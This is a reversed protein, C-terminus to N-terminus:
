EADSNVLEEESLLLDKLEEPTEARIWRDIFAPNEAKRAIEALVRLHQAPNARSGLLVFVAHIAQNANPFEIGEVSHAIVMYFGEVDDLLLHPLAVGAEAPTEGLQNRQLLAGLILDSSVGSAKALIQAGHRIVDDSDQRPPIEFTEAANVVQVFPDGRRLGKEKLIQRLEENLGMATADHSLLREGVRQAMQAVAGVRTVHHSAYLYHWVVGLGVLGMSFISAMFGMKPILVISVLIGAIPMFPYLPSKFGPDYSKIGSERMVIVAVNVLGFVLLQFTSALKAMQELGTFVVIFVIVGSTLFIANKPTKFKSFRSLGHPIVRDRSMALLYRSASLIGANATTAFALVAALSILHAGGRGITLGAADSVPTLSTYLQEKPVVGVVIWVVLGYILMVSVLSLLMGLPINREPDRVEEALSAVKTLGIYSIFLFAATPLVSQTGFPAFPTLRGSEIAPIGRIVLLSLILLMALVMGVQMGAAEKAGFFNMLVFVICCIVAIVNVPLGIYPSLYAGLGVLAISTKLILAMWEGVGDITGFMGGLSRSIFFYTGGARPMATALEAQAFLSPLILIGSLIYAFIVLPGCKSAAVGSLVFLGSSIMAGTAIAYVHLLGLQKILKKAM